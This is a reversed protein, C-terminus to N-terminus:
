IQRSELRGRHSLNDFAALLLVLSKQEDKPSNKHQGCYAATQKIRSQKELERKM